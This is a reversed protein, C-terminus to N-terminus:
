AIRPMVVRAPSVASQRVVFGLICWFLALMGFFFAGIALNDLPLGTAISAIIGLPFSLGCPIIAFRRWGHLRGVVATTVGVLNMTLMSLPWAADTAAFLLNERDFLQMAEFLGFLCAMAVLVMQIILV